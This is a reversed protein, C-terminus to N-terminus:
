EVGNADNREARSQWSPIPLVTPPNGEFPFKWNVDVGHVWLRALTQLLFVSDPQEDFVNRCTPVILRKSIDKQFAPHLCIMSSLSQGPGVELLVRTKNELLREIGVGFRVTELLHRGWYIASTAEETKLWDGTVNSLIPLSPASLRM